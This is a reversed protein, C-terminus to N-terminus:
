SLLGLHQLDTAYKGILATRRLHPAPEPRRGVARAPTENV